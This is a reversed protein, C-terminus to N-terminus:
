ASKEKTLSGKHAAWRAKRDEIDAPIEFRRYVGWGRSSVFSDVLTYGMMELYLKPGEGTYSRGTPCWDHVLYYADPSALAEAFIAADSRRVGDAGAPIFLASSDILVMDFNLAPVNALHMCEVELLPLFATANDITPQHDEIAVHREPHCATQIALSTVGCGFELVIRPQVRVCWQFLWQLDADPPAFRGVKFTPPIELKM